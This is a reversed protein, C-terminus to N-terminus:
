DVRKALTAESGKRGITVTQEPSPQFASAWRGDKAFRQGTLHIAPTPARAPHGM